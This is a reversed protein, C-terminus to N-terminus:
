STLNHFAVAAGILNSDNRYKCPLIKIYNSTLGKSKMLKNSYESIKKIIDKRYSVGGGIVFVEPDIIVKLDFVLKGIKEIFENILKEAENDGKEALEILEKGSVKKRYKEAQHVLTFDGVTKSGEIILGFEGALLNTGELLRNNISVAGGIGTGIVIFVSTSTDKAVGYKFECLAACNADNELSIPVKFENEILNIFNVNHIYPVASIGCIMKEKKNVLGPCSLAVGDIKKDGIYESMSEILLQINEPTTFKKQNFLKNNKWLGCKVFTGGIDFCAIM